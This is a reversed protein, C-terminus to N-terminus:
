NEDPNHAMDAAVEFLQEWWQDLPREHQRSIMEDLKRFNIISEGAGGFGMFYGHNDKADLCDILHNTADFSLRTALTRDFPSPIGGQQLPGLIVKKVDFLDNSEAEFLRSIFDTTYIKDAKENRIYLGVNRGHKFSKVLRKIHRRLKDLNIGKEHLYVEEAGTALGSMAALYGCYRGMVEVIFARRSSDASNKITDIASVINNLATDAGISLECGPLSNNISAPICVFPINFVPFIKRMKYLRELGSYGAWGGIMLIGDIKNNELTAAINYMDSEGPVTRNSGIKSGPLGIWEEIEMWGVKQIDDNILGEFGNRIKFVKNGRDLAIRVAARVAANMGPSPWGCNMVAINYTGTTEDGRPVALCMTRYIDKLKKWSSGRMEVAEDFKKEKILDAIQSNKGVSDMLDVIDFRNKDVVVLHGRESNNENLIDHVASHGALTSMYRDYASPIGGRQVHGLITIRSDIGMGKDIVEKIMDCSIPNGQRDRAGEAVIIISDRRGADIGSQLVECIKKEWGDYPPYEPVFVWGAGSAIASVLALYGCNRGMVEVIFTRQHSAATSKIADVAEIIRHLASDAGITMDTNAMDNDISGVMGVIKLQPHKKVAEASIEGAATLEELLSKWEESFQNAGTLSGDGGIVVLSDIDNKVMNKAAKLRGSRDRFEKCRATGIVTGGQGLIGSVSDWSMETLKNNVLGEYGEHIAYVKIGLVAGTRVVARVAANMGQADGGSTMVAIAKQGSNETM